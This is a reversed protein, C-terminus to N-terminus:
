GKKALGEVRSPNVAAVAAKLEDVSVNDGQAAIMFRDGALVSYEGHRSTKDFSETTMRGDVKGVKEYRGNSESSSRVNFANAMAGLAGAAGMDTITLTLRADGKAYKGEASSGNIGGAGGSASSVDSRAYGAVNEPLLGKLVEPDTPQIAQGDPATGSQMQKAAAEMQKSAAQLKALDMSSGGPLSVTGSVTASNHSLAGMGLGGTAMAVAGTVAAIILGVVIAAVITLAAYPLAKDEPTKMLRPLGLYLLYLGYIAALLTLPGLAPLLLLVGAVYSPTYSYAAVKVAQVPNRTAGFNPALADIILSIVYVAVLGMVYGIVGQVVAQVPGVRVHIGFAGVGILMSGLAGCVAPIAALPILYGKYIGGVTAPELDIVEWTPKPQLLISKVRAVLGAGASGPEVVSM